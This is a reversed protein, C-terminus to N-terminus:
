TGLSNSEERLLKIKHSFFERRRLFHNFKIELPYLDSLYTDELRSWECLDIIPPSVFTLDIALKAQNPCTLFTPSGDNICTFSSDLASTLLIVGERKSRDCGRERHHANFDGLLIARSFSNCFAFLSDYEQVSFSEQSHRYIYVITLDFCEYHVTIAICELRGVFQICDKVLSYPISRRVALILDGGGRLQSDARFVEFDHLNVHSALGLWTESLALVDYEQFFTNASDIKKLLSHCNWQHVRLRQHQPLNNQTRGPM